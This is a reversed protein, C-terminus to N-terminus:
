AGIDMQASVAPHRAWFRIYRRWREVPERRPLRSPDYGHRGAPHHLVLGQGVHILAHNIVPGLVAALAVDGRRPPTDDSLRIFGSEAFHAMYLDEAGAQWWEWARPRDILRLGFREHFWDRVLAYCDTVGHRYGRGELPPKIQGGFWFLGSDATGRPVAIGWAVSDAQSQRMDDVSPWAPGFPHSHVVARLPPLDRLRSPHIVFHRAPDAASNVLRHYSFGRGTPAATVVGCVEHQRDSAAHAMIAADIDAGFPHRDPLPM